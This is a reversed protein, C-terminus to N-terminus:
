SRRRKRANEDLTQPIGVVSRKRRVNLNDEDSITIGLGSGSMVSQEDAKETWSKRARKGEGFVEEGDLDLPTIPGHSENSDLSKASQPDSELESGYSSSVLAPLPLHSYNGSSSRVKPLPELKAATPPTPSHISRSSDRAGVQVSSM